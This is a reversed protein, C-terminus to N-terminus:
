KIQLNIPKKPIMIPVSSESYDTETGDIYIDKASFYYYGSKGEGLDVLTTSKGALQTDDPIVVISYPYYDPKEQETPGYKIIYKVVM